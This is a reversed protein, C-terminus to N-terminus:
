FGCQVVSTMSAAIGYNKYQKIRCKQSFWSNRRRPLTCPVHDHAPTSQRRSPGCCIHLVAGFKQNCTRSVAASSAIINRASRVPGPLPVLDAGILFAHSGLPGFCSTSEFHLNVPRITDHPPRDLWRVVAQVDHLAPARRQSLESDMARWGVGTRKDRCPRDVPLGNDTRTM